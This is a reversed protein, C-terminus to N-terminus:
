LLRFYARLQTNIQIFDKLPSHFMCITSFTFLEELLRHLPHWLLVLSFLPYENGEWWLQKPIIESASPASCSSRIRKNDTGMSAPKQNRKVKDEGGVWWWWRRMRRRDTAQQEQEQIYMTINGLSRVNRFKDPRENTRASTSVPVADKGRHCTPSNYTFPPFLLFLSLVSSSCVLCLIYVIGKQYRCVWQKQMM